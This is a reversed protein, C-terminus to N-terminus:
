ESKLAKLDQYDQKAAGVVMQAFRDSVNDKISQNIASQIKKDIDKGFQAMRKSVEEQVRQNTLFEILKTKSGYSDCFKGNSDVKRELLNDFNRKILDRITTKEGPDGWRDTIEVENELWVDAFQLAKEGIKESAEAVAQSFAAKSQQEMDKMCSRSIAQKIGHILESKVQDDISGDDEIWELEVCIDLKM